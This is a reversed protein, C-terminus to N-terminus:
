DKRQPSGIFRITPKKAKATKLGGLYTALLKQTAKDNPDINGVFVFPLDAPNAFRQKYIEISKDQNIKDIMQMNQILVVPDNGSTTKRVSDSFAKNPNKEANALSTKLMNLLAGYSNDDKRPATFHLYVLQLLTELDKVSSNGNMGESYQNIYPSVSAIKGTLAKSLDIATFNGIGNASVISTALSASYLDDINKVKSLGGDSFARLTIEDKKFTTPKFVVKIGNSLTM